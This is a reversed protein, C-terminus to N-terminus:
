HAESRHSRYPTAAGGALCNRGRPAVGDDVLEGCQADVLDLGAVGQLWVVHSCALGLTRVVAGNDRLKESGDISKQM